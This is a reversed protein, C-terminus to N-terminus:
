RRGELLKAWAPNLPAQGDRERMYDAVFGDVDARDLWPEISATVRDAIEANTPVGSGHRYTHAGLVSAISKRVARIEDLWDPDGEQLIHSM